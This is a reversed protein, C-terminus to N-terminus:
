RTITLRGTSKGVALKAGAWWHEVVIRYGKGPPANVKWRASYSTAGAVVKVPATAATVPYRTGKASLAWVRFVGAAIPESLTWRVTQNTGRRWTVAGNPKTVSLRTQATVAVRGSSRAESQVEGADSEYRVIIQYTVMAPLAVTYSWDYDTSGALATVPAGPPTLQTLVGSPSSAWLTFRGDSVPTSLTWHVAQSSGRRWLEGGAPSTITVTPGTDAAFSASITHGAQVNTFQYSSRAGVSAGDVLVDAVHYGPDATITFLLNEGAAVSQPAPPSIGGHAGASPTVTYKQGADAAFTASITHDAQVNTFAYSARAGVSRGDVLVDAVHYGDSAAITFVLGGGAVVTQPTPPTIGGHAGASPTITFRREADVAFTASITHDARVDIFEYSSLAGVSAGDVLVDAIHYGPEPSVRFTLSSGAKVSSPVPPTIGGHAGASPTITFPGEGEAAFTASISHDALVDTFQYSVPTGVSVGDIRVEAIHYGPDATITFRVSSAHADVIQEELPSVLGHDGASPTITFQQPASRATVPAPQWAAAAGLFLVATLLLITGLKFTSHSSGPSKM